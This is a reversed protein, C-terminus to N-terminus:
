TARIVRGPRAGTMEGNAQILEGHCYTGVYGTAGGLLRPQDAPLDYVMKPTLSQLRSMDILNIDARRGPELVGRDSLGYLRANDGTLKKVILEIPLHQPHDKGFERVWQTLMYTHVGGDCILRCHAGADSLGFVSLPHLLMEYVADLNGNAYGTVTHMLFANGGDELMLDYAVEQPTRGERKAIQAISLAPDPTYNIPDGGPYTMEWMSPNKYFMSFGTTNPDEESLLRARMAPDALRRFREAPPLNAIAAFSPMFRWPHEGAMSFLISIPRGPVQPTIKYGARAAEECVALQSRWQEADANHQVQLYMMPCNSGEAVKRVLAMERDLAECNEGGVGSLVMEMLGHGSERVARALPILENAGAFTGPVPVGDIDIHIETRSTSFGLAGADMGERILAAMQGIDDANAEENDAGRQGMVYTRLAGHSMQTGIDIARDMTDLSDIYEPFSEWRWDMGAKLSIGPIDEVGEMLNILWDHREPKAPAFGVGCNGLVASTVGHLSSQLLEPDWTVQADYHTHIDVWGPTVTLGDANVTESASGLSTGIAAIRGDKIGIDATYPAHGKGDVITGGSIIRDFTPM